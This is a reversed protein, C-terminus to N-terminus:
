FDSDDLTDPTDPAPTFGHSSAESPEPCEEVLGTQGNYRLWFKQGVSQGTYRDKLIRVTTTNRRVPDPDQQNRELGIMFSAWFGIARSGRFHRIKVRGGEEHPTGEPTALHSVFTMHIDLEKVLAGMDAMLKDLAKREDDGMSAALATIHDLVFYRVNHAHRLFIIRDKIPDWENRGFSDYMFLGKDKLQSWGLDFASEDWRDPIHLPIGVHKGVMRLGTERPMQELLFVGVPENHVTLMHEIDESLIDTKGVGTGAGLAILEGMRKGYTLRQLAPWKWSLGERPQEKIQDKIDALTVIGEPRYKEARWMADIIEKGRGAKLMENADKLPLVAIKAKDFGIVSAAVEAAKRGIEDQDFMLIVEDFGRFYARHEAIHKKLQPGAGTHISVVPWANGQAQSVSMADIEGETVVLKKGTRPWAHAGFPLAEKSSGIWYFDKSATRVKQGVLVGEANYYPAVQVKDSVMYGFKKCTDKTLNRATLTEYTGNLFRVDSRVNTRANAEGGEAPQWAVDEDCSFCFTHGDSYTVRNDRSGCFSCPGKSVWESDSEHNM